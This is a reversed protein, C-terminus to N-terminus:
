ISRKPELNRCCVAGQNVGPDKGIRKQFRDFIRIREVRERNSLIAGTAVRGLEGETQRRRREPFSEFEKV